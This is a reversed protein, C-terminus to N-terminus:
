ARDHLPDSKDPCELNNAFHLATRIAYFRNRTMPEAIPDVRLDPETSFYDHTEPNIKYSMLINIGIFARMEDKEIEFPKGTQHM